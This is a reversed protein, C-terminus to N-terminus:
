GAHVELLVQRLTVKDGPKVTLGDVTGAHPASVSLEMKMSELVVLVEGQQVADGDAVNVLLVTGPMPAALSDGTASLDGGGARAAAIELQHGDRGIWARGDAIDRALVYRRAVGDLEVAVASADLRRAAGRWSSAAAAAPAPAGRPVVERTTVKEGRVTLETPAGDAVTVLRRWTGTAGDSRWSFPISTRAAHAERDSLELALAAAPLLDAPAEGTLEDGGLVRELLGTDLAGLRVDDRTLLARTFPANTTIGLLETQALARELRALATARDPGHAIVKALMPDYHTQVALGQALAADVRVGDGAPARWHRVVGTSPLFGAAPDEAYLRAEVAHGRPVLESQRLALQEGAAVRLQQEVLDVGYVLETVPHEVQLRTNMELFFFDDTLVGNTAGPVILEVTGAGVYGCARALQVAAAGMEARWDPDVVPSPAEEVVKQHRRQLSCEREGLHVVAGHRDAMLQVEIHRPRELYREVLVRDDGFAARAERRAADLAGALAGAEHVVRMGKGGGGAVAKVVVPLGHEAVFAEIQELTLDVGEVGPVVPVGAERALQKARAKDGMLEIAQPPPGIWTLGAGQVAAAFAASEALFGYGPHVSRAGSIRAADLLADISLYSSRADAPGIRVAADASQVHPAGADADSHVAVSSLGLARVTRCIRVAIEGRNAVLVPGLASLEAM